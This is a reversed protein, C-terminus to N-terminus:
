GAADTRPKIHGSARLILACLLGALAGYLHANIIVAGGVLQATAPETGSLQEWALKAAVGVLVLLAAGRASQLMAVVGAALMGHLVGSLGVYWGLATDLVYLGGGIAIACVLLIAMWPGARLAQGCWAWILALGALNLLLHAWGLHVIHATVLRWPEVVVLTREYHLAAAWGMWQVFASVAGLLLPLKWQRLLAQGAWRQGAAGNM